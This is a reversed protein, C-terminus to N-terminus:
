LTHMGFNISITDFYNNDMIKVHVILLSRLEKRYAKAYDLFDVIADRFATRMGSISYRVGFHEAVYAIIFKVELYLNEDLHEMLQEEQAEPLEGTYPM